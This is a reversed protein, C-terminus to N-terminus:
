KQPDWLKGKTPWDTGRRPFEITGRWKKSYRYTERKSTEVKGKDSVYRKLKSTSFFGELM